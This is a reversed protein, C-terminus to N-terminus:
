EITVCRIFLGPPIIENYNDFYEKTSPLITAYPEELKDIKVKITTEDKAVVYRYSTTYQKQNTTKAGGSSGFCCILFMIYFKSAKIFTLGLCLFLTMQIIGFFIIIYVPFQFEYQSMLIFILSICNLSIIFLGFIITITLLAPALSQSRILTYM